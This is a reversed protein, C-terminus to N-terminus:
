FYYSLWAYVSDSARTTYPTGDIPIGGYESGEAGWVVDAGVLLQLDGTIDWTLRPQLIGSPDGVNTIATIFFNVLPHIEIQLSGALYTRGLTFLEGRAIRSLIEPDSLAEQYNDKGIGSYFFELFGYFNKDWWMWSYDLNAVLSLYNPDPSGEHLRTWTVDMRWAADLLYGSGGVGFVQDEFHRAALLDFEMSGQLLHVKAALSSEEWTIDGSIPDRRPVYLLQFNGVNGTPVQALVMDDGIKYDREIDTPSFPNFLDMPNFLFGNGWTVAYRGATVTGWDPAVTLALRDIRHYLVSDDTEDLVRTLNMVRLDDNPIPGALLTYVDSKGLLQALEDQADLTDGAAAAIEYHTDLSSSSGLFLTNKLRGELSVDCYTDPGVARYPSTAPPFSVEGSYKLHGGWKAEITEPSTDTEADACTAGLLLLFCSLSFLFSFLSLVFRYQLLRGTV